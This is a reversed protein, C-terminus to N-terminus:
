SGDSKGASRPVAMVIVVRDLPESHGRSPVVIEISIRQRAYGLSVLYDRVAAARRSAWRASRGREEPAAISRLVLDYEPATLVEGVNRMQSKERSAISADDVVFRVYALAFRGECKAPEGRWGDKTCIQTECTPRRVLQAAGVPFWRGRRFCARTQSRCQVRGAHCGCSVDGDRVVEDAKLQVGSRVCGQESATLGPLSRAELACVRPEGLLYSSGQEQLTGMVAVNLSSEFPCCVWSDDGACSFAAEHRADRLPLVGDLSMPGGASNCCANGCELLTQRTNAVLKGWVLVRNGVEAEASQM